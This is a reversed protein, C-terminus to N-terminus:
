KSKALKVTPDYALKIPEDNATALEIKDTWRFRNKMQFIWIADHFNRIQGVMGANGASEFYEQLKDLGKRKADAFDQHEHEWQYLVARHTDLKAAFTEFSFGSAMHEILKECYEPRYDPPRGVAKTAPKTM